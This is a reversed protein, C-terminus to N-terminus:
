PCNQPEVGGQTNCYPYGNVLSFVYVAMLDSVGLNYNPPIGPGPGHMDAWTIHAQPLITSGYNIITLNEVLLDKVSM